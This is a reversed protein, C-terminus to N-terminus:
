APGSGEPPGKGADGEGGQAPRARVILTAPLDATGEHINRRILRLGAGELRGAADPSHRMCYVAVFGLYPAVYGEILRRIRAPSPPLGIYLYDRCLIFRARLEAQVPRM